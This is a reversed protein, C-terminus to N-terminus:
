EILLKAAKSEQGDAPAILLYYIGKEWGTVDLTLNGNIKECTFNVRQGLANLITFDGTEVGRMTIKNRPPNPYLTINSDGAGQEEIGVANACDATLNYLTLVESANLARKYLRIDDIDGQSYEDIGVPSYGIYVSGSNTSGMAQGSNNLTQM